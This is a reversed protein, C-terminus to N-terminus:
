CGLWGLLKAQTDPSSFYDTHAVSDSGSLVEPNTIPFRSAGSADYVGQTPVVLDNDAGSFVQDVLQDRVWDRFGPSQPEFHSTVAFYDSTGDNITNLGSLFQGKPIMSTLGDLGGFAGVALQKVVAIVTQLVDVVGPAPFFNLLNTYTDILKGVHEADAMATGANPAGVFAVKDITLERSGLSLESQREALIRTVLGGRSHCIVDLSLRAGDPIREILVNVNQAPDESLTYHDFAFVRGGYHQYLKSFIQPPLSGFASGARSFTGHVFLLAPGQQLRQWDEGDVATADLSTYNAPTFPRVRYPRKAAEWRGVFHDAVAGAAKDMLRFAVIKLVKTGVAGILGRYSDDGADGPPVYRPVLYTRDASSRLAPPQELETAFHWTMVGAEDTALLVQGWDDGPHQVTVTISEDDDSRGRGAVGPGLDIEQTDTIEITEQTELGELELAGRLSGTPEEPARMGPVGAPHSEARGRLGPTRLTVNGVTVPAGSPDLDEAM